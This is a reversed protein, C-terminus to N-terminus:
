VSLALVCLCVHRQSMRRGKLQHKHLTDTLNRMALLLAATEQVSWSMSEGCEAAMQQNIDSLVTKNRQCHPMILFVFQCILFAVNIVKTQKPTKIYVTHAVNIHM